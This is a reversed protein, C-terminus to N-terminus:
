YEVICALECAFECSDYFYECCTKYALHAEEKQSYTLHGYVTEIFEEVMEYDCNGCMSFMFDHIDLLLESFLTTM